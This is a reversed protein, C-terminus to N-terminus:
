GRQSLFDVVNVAAKLEMARRSANTFTGIHPTCLVQPFRSLPGSYPENEYVDLAAAAIQGSELSEMLAPEDILYGRATNIIRAGRKMRAFEARSLLPGERMSRSAHLSVVDSRCLLDDFSVHQINNPVGHHLGPDAVLVTAGFPRLCHEVARGIRGFGVLGITWESLLTGPYRRWSGERFSLGYEPLNRALSLIFGLTLEAVPAAVEDPTNLVAIGIRNAADLDIADVGVGVRSICKLHPLSKLVAATYPEIGAIIADAPGVAEVLEEERLRRGLKNERIDFGAEILARRPSEDGECFQSIAVYVSKSSM